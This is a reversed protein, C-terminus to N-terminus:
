KIMSEQLMQETMDLLSALDTQRNMGLSSELLTRLSSCRHARVQRDCLNSRQTSAFSSKRRSAYSPQNPTEGSSERTRARWNGEVIQVRSKIRSYWHSATSRAENVLPIASLETRSDAGLFNLKM